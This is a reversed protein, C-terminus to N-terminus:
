LERLVNLRFFLSDEGTEIDRWSFETQPTITWKDYVINAGFSVQNEWTSNAEEIQFGTNYSSELTWVGWQKRASLSFSTDSNMGHTINDLSASFMGGTWRTGAGYTWNDTRGGTQLAEWYGDWNDSVFGLRSGYAYYSGSENHGVEAQPKWTLSDAEGGSLAWTYMVVAAVAGLINLNLKDEDVDSGTGSNVVPSEIESRGGASLVVRLHENANYRAALPFVGGVSTSGFLESCEPYINLREHGSHASISCASFTEGVTLLPSTTAGGAIIVPVYCVEAVRNQSDVINRVIWGRAECRESTYSSEAPPLLPPACREGLQTTYTIENVPCICSLGNPSPVKTVDCAQCREGTFYAGAPCGTQANAAGVILSMMMASLTWSLMRILGGSAFQQFKLQGIARNIM